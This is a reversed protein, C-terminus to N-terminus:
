HEEAETARETVLNSNLPVPNRYFLHNPAHFRGKFGADHLGRLM